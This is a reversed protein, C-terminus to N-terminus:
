FLALQRAPVDEYIQRATEPAPFPIPERKPKRPTTSPRPEVRQILLTGHREDSESEPLTLTIVTPAKANKKAM